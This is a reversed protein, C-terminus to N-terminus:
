IENNGEIKIKSLNELIQTNLKEEM